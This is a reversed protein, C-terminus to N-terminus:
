GAARSSHCAAIAEIVNIGRERKYSLHKPQCKEKGGQKTKAKNNTYEHEGPTSIGIVPPMKQWILCFIMAPLLLDYSDLVVYYM